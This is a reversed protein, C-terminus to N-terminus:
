LNVGKKWVWMAIHVAAKKVVHLWVNSLSTQWMHLLSLSSVASTHTQAHWRLEREELKPWHNWYKPCVTISYNTAQSQDLLMWSANLNPSLYTALSCLQMQLYRICSWLIDQCMAHMNHVQHRKEKAINSITLYVPWAMKDGEFSTLQAKDSALNIPAVVGGEPIKEQSCINHWVLLWDSVIQKGTDEV